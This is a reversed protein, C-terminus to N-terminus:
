ILATITKFLTLKNFQIGELSIQKIKSSIKIEM